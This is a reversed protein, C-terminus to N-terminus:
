YNDWKKHKDRWELELGVELGPFSILSTFVLEVWGFAIFLAVKNKVQIFLHVVFMFPKKHM